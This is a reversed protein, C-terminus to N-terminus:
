SRWRLTNRLPIELSYNIELPPAFFDVKRLLTLLGLELGYIDACIFFYTSVNQDIMTEMTDVCFQLALLLLQLRASLMPNDIDLSLESNLEGAWNAM